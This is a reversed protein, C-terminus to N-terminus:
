AVAIRIPRSEHNCIDRHLTAIGADKFTLDCRFCKWATTTM